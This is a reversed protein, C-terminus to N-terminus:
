RASPAAMTELRAILGDMGGKSIEPAFQSRYTPALWVGMVAVDVARWDGNDSKSMRYDLEVTQGRSRVETRAIAENSDPSSDRSPRERVTATQDIQSLAGSYVRALIKTFLAQTRTRQEPTASRWAPGVASSTLRKFDIRTFLPSEALKSIAAIDGSRAAPDAAVAAIADRTFALAQQQPTLASSTTATPSAAAPTPNAPTDARVRSTFLLLAAGAALSLTATLALRHTSRM